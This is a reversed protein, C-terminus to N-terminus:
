RADGLAPFAKQWILQWSGAYRKTWKSIGANHDALRRSVDNTVGIYHKQGTSSWLVYCYYANSKM